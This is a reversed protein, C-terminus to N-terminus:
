RDTEKAAKSDDGEDELITTLHLHEAATLPLESTMRQRYFMGSGVAAAIFFLLPGLWLALNSDKFAPKLLVYDGYRAVIYDKAQEDTDGALLRQRVLLRLDHALPADSEDISENQCVLCRLQKSIDRARAETVPDPLREDPQVAHATMSCFFFLFLFVYKTM